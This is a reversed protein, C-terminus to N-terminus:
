WKRVEVTRERLEGAGDGGAPPFAGRVGQEVRGHLCRPFRGPGLGVGGVGAPLDGDLVAVVLAVEVAGALFAIAGSAV